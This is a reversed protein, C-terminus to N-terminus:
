ELLKQLQKKTKYVLYTKQYVKQTVQYDESNSRIGTANQFKTRLDNIATEASRQLSQIKRKKMRATLGCSRKDSALVFNPNRCICYKPDKPDEKFDGSCESHALTALLLIAPKM